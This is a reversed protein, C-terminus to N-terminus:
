ELVALLNTRRRDRPRRRANLNGVAYIKATFEGDTNSKM